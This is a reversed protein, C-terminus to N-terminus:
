TKTHLIELLRIWKNDNKDVDSLKINPFVENLESAIKLERESLSKSCPGTDALQYKATRVLRNAHKVHEKLLFTDHSPLSPDFKCNQSVLLSLPCPARFDFMSCLCSNGLIIEEHSNTINAVLFWRTNATRHPRDLVCTADFGIERAADRIMNAHSLEKPFFSASLKSNNCDLMRRAGSFFTLADNKTDLFHLAGVSFIHRFVSHRFPLPQRIDSRAVSVSPHSSSLLKLMAHAYDIGVVSFGVSNLVDSSLGSGCGADLVLETQYSKILSLVSLTESRSNQDATTGDRRQKGTKCLQFSGQESESQIVGALELCRITQVLQSGGNWETYATARRENYHTNANFSQKYEEHWITIQTELQIITKYETNSKLELEVAQIRESSLRHRGRKRKKASVISILDTILSTTICGLNRKVGWFDIIVDKKHNTCM